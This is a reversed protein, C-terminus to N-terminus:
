GEPFSRTGPWIIRVAGQGGEGSLANADSDSGQGGGGGGYNGGDGKFQDEGGSGGDGYDSATNSPGAIGIGGGGQARTQTDSDGGAAGATPAPRGGTFDSNRGSVGRKTYTGPAGGGGPRDSQNQPGGGAGIGGDGGKHRTSGAIATGEGGKGGAFPGSIGVGFPPPNIGDLDYPSGQGGGGGGAILLYPGNVLRVYSDGGDGGIGGARRTTPFGGRGASLKFQQGPRVEINNRYSLAGGGGGSGAFYAAGGGGGAGVALISISRVGNPVEWTTNVTSTHLKQGEGAYSGYTDLLEKLTVQFSEGERQVLLIRDEFQKNQYNKRELQGVPCRFSKPGENVLIDMESVQSSILLDKAQVQFSASGNTVLFTDTDRLAM